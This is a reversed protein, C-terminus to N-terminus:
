ISYYWVGIHFKSNQSVILPQPIPCLTLPSHPPLIPAPLPGTRRPSSSACSIVRCDHRLFSKSNSHVCVIRMSHWKLPFTTPWASPRYTLRSVMLFSKWFSISSRENSVVSKAAVKNLSSPFKSLTCKFRPVPMQPLSSSLPLKRSMLLTTTSAFHRCLPKPFAITSAKTFFPQWHALSM